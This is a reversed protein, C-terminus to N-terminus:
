ICTMKVVTCLIMNGMTKPRNIGQNYIKGFASDGLSKTAM